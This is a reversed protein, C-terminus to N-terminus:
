KVSVARINDIRFIPNCEKGNVGGSWAWIVFSAFDEPRELPVLGPTGDSNYIFESFPVTVTIWKDDTHFEGTAEWPRWLGRCLDLGAPDGASSHVFTNNQWSDNAAKDASAFILQMAGSSWPNSKPICIEFKLAMNKFDTFDVVYCIPTGPGSTVSMPDGNWNGCWFDIKYDENWAGSEDLVNASKLEVYNGDVGGESKYEGKFNWGQPVVDTGGDFNTILGRPDRYQFPAKTTGSATTVKVVGPQAGAPIKFTAATESLKMDAEEVVAGQFEITIPSIFYQGTITVEEGEKAYENSMAKVVPAPALVVFDYTVTDKAATIMYIKDTRVTAKTKPVSVVLTNDTIYSTNLVAEQDNFWLQNISRLNNGVLCVAEQMFAQTIVIDRDAYRIFDVSPVGEAPVFADPQDECSVALFGASITLAALIKNLYKM